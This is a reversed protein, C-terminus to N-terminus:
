GGLVESASCGAWGVWARLPALPASSSTGASRRSGRVSPASELDFGLLTEVQVADCWDADASTITEGKACGGVLGPDPGPGRLVTTRPGVSGVELWGVLSSTRSRLSRSVTASAIADSTVGATVTM